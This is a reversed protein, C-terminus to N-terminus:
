SLYYKLSVSRFSVAFYRKLFFFLIETLFFEAAWSEATVEALFVFLCVYVPTGRPCCLCGPLTFPLAAGLCVKHFESRCHSVATM